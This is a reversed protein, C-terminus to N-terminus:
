CPAFGGFNAFGSPICTRAHGLPTTEVDLGFRDPYKESRLKLTKKTLDVLAGTKQDFKVTIGDSDKLLVGPYDDSDLVSQNGAVVCEAPKTSCDCTASGAGSTIGIVGTEVFQRAGTCWADDEGDVLLSVTRDTRMAEVRAQAFQSSLADAAGRLRTKELFETFSPVAFALIIALVAIGVMLEILTVGRMTRRRGPEGQLDKGM